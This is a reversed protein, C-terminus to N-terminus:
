RGSQGGPPAPEASTRASAGEDRGPATEAVRSGKRKRRLVAAAVAIGAIVLFAEAGYEWVPTSPTPPGGAIIVPVPTANAQVGDADTVVVAISYAGAARPICSLISNNRPACGPPLGSYTYGLPSTGGLVAVRVTLNQEVRPTTPTITVAQVHPRPNSSWRTQTSNVEYPGSRVRVSASGTVVSSLTCTVTPRNVLACGSPLGLWSFSAAPSDLGFTYASFTAPVGVDFSPGPQVRPALVALSISGFFWDGSDVGAGGGSILLPAAIGATLNTGPVQAPAMTSWGGVSPAVASLQSWGTPGYLWTDTLITGSSAVGGFLVIEDDLTDFAMSAASRPSPSPRSTVANWQPTGSTTSYIWTDGLVTGPGSANPNTGRGGFLVLAQLAPDYALCAMQRGPPAGPGGAIAQTWNGTSYRWTYASYNGPIYGGVMIVAGLTPDYAMAPFARSRPGSVGGAGVQSWRHLSVNFGWTGNVAGASNNGGFLLFYGDRPDYAMGAGYRPGPTPAGPPFAVPTWSGGVFEWTDGYILGQEEGGYLLLIGDAADYASSANARPPPQLPLGPTINFWASPGAALRSGLSPNATGSAPGLANTPTQTAVPAALLVLAFAIGLTLAHALLARGGGFASAIEPVGPPKGKTGQHLDPEGRVIPVQPPV